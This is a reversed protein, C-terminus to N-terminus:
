ERNDCRARSWVGIDNENEVSGAADSRRVEIIHALENEVDNPREVDTLLVDADTQDFEGVICDNMDVQSSVIRCRIDLCSDSSNRIVAATLNLECNRM